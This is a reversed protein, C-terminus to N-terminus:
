SSKEFTSHTNILFRELAKIPELDEFLIEKSEAIKDKYSQLIAKSQLLFVAKEIFEENSKAVWEDLKLKRLIASAFRGRMFDGEITIIPLNCSIAKMATNFGSFGITDLFLSSQHMLGSFQAQELFPIFRIFNDPNLGADMFAKSLRNKLIASLNDQFNFFIFQCQHLKKAIEVLVYDNEPSYKSPSGACLLIPSESDISLDILNITASTANDKLIYTGFGPLQIIRESYNEQCNSPEFDSGSLFYDITPLGTTEPHGWSVIQIPVLRLCALQKTSTDMGIEPYLLIDLNRELVLRSMTLFDDSNNVYGAAKSKAFFTEDDEVGGTNFLFLEFLNSDLNQIWGKTIANWVPHSCFYHSIIGIRIKGGSQSNNSETVKLTNQIKKTITFALSGFEELLSKNNKAQYALYFPHRGIANSLTKLPSLSYISKAQLQELQLSFKERSILVEEANQYVKPIQALLLSFNFEPNNLDLSIAKQYNEKSSQASGTEYYAEGLLHYIAANGPNIKSAYEYCQIAASYEKAKKLSSGFNICADLYHPNIQLAKEFSQFALDFINSVTYANGLNNYAEYFNPNIRVSRQFFDIALQSQGSELYIVGQNNIAETYNPRLETARCYSMHAADIELIKKLVNGLNNHAEPLTPDLAISSNFCEIAKKFEGIATFVLGLNSLTHASKGGFENAKNFWKIADQWSNKQYARIGLLNLIEPNKDDLNHAGLFLRDAEELDGNAFLSYAKQFQLQAQAKDIPM